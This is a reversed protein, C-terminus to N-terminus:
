PPSIVEHLRLTVVLPTGRETGEPWENEGYALDPPLVLMAASDVTMMQVAEALGPLLDAVRERRREAALAPVETRLDARTVKFSIVVTDEPGPRAGYGATKIGYCLGSDSRELEFQRCVERLYRQLYAPQAFAEASFRRREEEAEMAQVRRGIEDLLNQAAADVPPAEGRFGARVGRLFAEVQADSWGLQALRNDLVLSSGVAAYAELPAAPEAACALGPSGLLAAVTLPLFLRSM